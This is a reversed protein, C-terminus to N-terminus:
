LSGGLWPGHRQRQANCGTSRIKWGERRRKSGRIGQNQRRGSKEYGTAAAECLRQIANHRRLTRHEQVATRPKPHPWSAALALVATFDRATLPNLCLQLLHWSAPFQIAHWPRVPEPLLFLHDEPESSPIQFCFQVLLAGHSGAHIPLFIDAIWWIYFRM